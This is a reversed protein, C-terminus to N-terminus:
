DRFRPGKKRLNTKPVLGAPPSPGPADIEQLELQSWGQRDLEELDGSDHRIAIIDGEFDIALVEFREDASRDEYWQGVVATLKHGRTVVVLSIVGISRRRRERGAPM